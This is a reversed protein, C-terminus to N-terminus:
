GHDALLHRAAAAAVAEERGAVGLKRYVSKVQTKITNPSVGLDTAILTLPRGSALARLVIQERETLAPAGISEPLASEVPPIECSDTERLLEQVARTDAPPLLALPLRLGRDCLLAALTQADHRAAAEGGTRVLAATRLSAAAASQRVSTPQARAQSLIRLTDRPRGDILAIRAREVITEFRDEPADKQLIARAAHTQGQALLLLTRTRSLARRASASHGERGRVQVLSELQTAGLAARGRRLAVLAEVTAMVIWHESTARHPGFVAIQEAAKEVDGEELALLAEAVRYFTGQYGDLYRNSWRGERVLQVYHRAEPMDGDLAHIGALMSLNSIGNEPEGVAAVAAGYAFCEIAQRRSGGYYLSIGLQASLLPVQVSYAEKEAEPMDALLRLARVAVSAAREHMGLVRLAVSETVWIFLRDSDSVDARQSNAASVALRFLQLGRLRRVRVANYCIALLMVLLPEDRLQSLPISGLIERVAAGHNLLQHWSSMVVRRALEWDDGEVAVRLAETPKGARQAGAVVVRRLAPIEGSHRRELERRLLARTFPAFRFARGRESASWSGFGYSEADDLYHVARPDGSLERAGADDVTEALSIRVLASILAPDYGSRAVRLRMYEEVGEAATEVLSGHDAPIGRRAMAHIVAPFGNTVARIRRALDADVGLARQIEEEDFMLDPPEVATRDVLMGVADSDLVTRRNAAAVVRVAPVAAVTECLDVLADRELTAADDVFITVPEGLDSLRDRVAQWGVDAVGPDGADTRRPLRRLIMRALGGSDAGAPDATIWLARDETRQVWERLVVTKGAGCAGRVLTLPAGVELHALLRPRTIVDGPVRPAGTDLRQM